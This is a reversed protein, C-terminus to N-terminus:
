MGIDQLKSTKADFIGRRTTDIGGTQTPNLGYYQKCYPVFYM